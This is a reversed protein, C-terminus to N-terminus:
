PRVPKRQMFRLGVFYWKTKGNRFSIRYIMPIGFIKYQIKQHPEVGSSMNHRALFDRRFDRAFKYDRKLKLRHERDRSNLISGDRKMYYYTAGPATVICSARAVVELSFPIDEIMRGPIFRLGQEDLFARRTLYRVAFAMQLVNTVSIKDELSTLLMRGKYHLSFDLQAENTIGGFVMDARSDGLADVMRQYYDRELLDDVDMFHIYDGTAADIGTNRAVSLGGNPQSILKVQPYAAAIEATRDRSGDDVVIIELNKYSQCLMNDICQAVWKEGNYAPIIVSIKM